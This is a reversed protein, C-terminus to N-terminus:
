RGFSRNGRQTLAHEVVHRHSRHPRPGLVIIDTLNAGKRSKQATRGLGRGGLVHPAKLDVLALMASTLGDDAGRHRRQTEQERHGELPGVQRALEHQRRTGPLQGVHEADVLHRPEQFRCRADLVPRREADGIAGAQAHRLHRVELGVVDVALPHQDPDLLALSALVAIGHERGLQESEQPQPPALALSAADQQRVPPQEGAGVVGVGDRRPLQVTGDVLGSFCRADALADTRVRQPVAKGGVQEFLVNIDADDLHQQAAFSEFLRSTPDYIGKAGEGPTMIAAVAEDNGGDCGCEQFGIALLDRRVHAIGALRLLRERAVDRDPILQPVLAVVDALDEDPGDVLADLTPRVDPHDRGWGTLMALVAWHRDMRRTGAVVGVLMEALEHDAVQAVYGKLYHLNILRNEPVLWHANAAARIRDDALAFRGVQWWTRDDRATVFPHDRGLEALIWDRVEVRGTACELVYRTALELEWRSDFSRGARRLAGPM